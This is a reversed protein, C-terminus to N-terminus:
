AVSAEPFEACADAVMVTSWLGYCRGKRKEANDM